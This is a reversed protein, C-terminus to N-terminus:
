GDEEATAQSAAQVSESMRGGLCRTRCGEQVWAECKGREKQSKLEEKCNSGGAIAQFAGLVSENMGTYFFM